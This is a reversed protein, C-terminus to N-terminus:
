KRKGSPIFQIALCFIGSAFFSGAVTAKRGISNILYCSLFNAPIEIFSVLVFNIYKDGAIAVANLSLGYYVFTNTLWCLFCALLRTVLIPSRLAQLTLVRDKPQDSKEEQQKYDYNLSRYLM